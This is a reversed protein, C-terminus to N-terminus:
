IFHCWEKLINGRYYPSTLRPNEKFFKSPSDNQETLLLCEPTVHSIVSENKLSRFM